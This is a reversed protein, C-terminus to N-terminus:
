SFFLMNVTNVTLLSNMYEDRKSWVPEELLCTHSVKRILDLDDSAVKILSFM